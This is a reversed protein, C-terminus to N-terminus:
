YRSPIELRQGPYILDPNALHNYAALERWDLGYRQAIKYVTDGKRVIYAHATPCPQPEFDCEFHDHVPMGCPQCMDYAQQGAYGCPDCGPMGPTGPLFHGPGAYGAVEHSYPMGAMGATEPAMMQCDPATAPMMTPDFYGQVPQRKGFFM